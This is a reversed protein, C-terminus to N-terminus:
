RLSRLTVCTSSVSSPSSQSPASAASIACNRRWQSRPMVLYCRHSQADSHRARPPQPAGVHADQTREGRDLPDRAAVEIAIARARDGFLETGGGEIRERRHDVGDVRHDYDRRSRRVGFHRQRGDRGALIDEDFLRDRTGKGVALRHYAGRACGSADELNSVDFTEVAGDLGHQRADADREEDLNMPQGGEGDATGVDGDDHIQHNM